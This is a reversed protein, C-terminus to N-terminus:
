PLRNFDTIIFAKSKIPNRKTVTLNITWSHINEGTQNQSAYIYKSDSKSLGANNAAFNVIDMSNILWMLGKEWNYFIFWYNYRPKITIGAFLGRDTVSKIQLEQFEFSAAQQVVQQNPYDASVALIGNIFDQTEKVHTKTMEHAIYDALASQASQKTRVILDVGNNDEEPCYVERYERLLKSLVLHEAARGLSLGLFQKFSRGIQHKMIILAATM